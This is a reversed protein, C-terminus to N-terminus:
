KTSRLLDYFVGKQTETDFKRSAQEKAALFLKDVLDDPCNKFVYCESHELGEEHFDGAECYEESKERRGDTIRLVSIEARAKSGDSNESDCEINKRYVELMVDPLYVVFFNKKKRRWSIRFVETFHILLRILRHISM